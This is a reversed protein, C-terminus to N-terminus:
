RLVMEQDVVGNIMEIRVRVRSPVRAGQMIAAGGDVARLRESVDEGIRVIEGDLSLPTIVIRTVNVAVVENWRDPRIPDDLYAQERLLVGAGRGQRAVRYRVRALRQNPLLTRPDIAGCGVIEFGDANMLGVLAMGNALDHRIVQLMQGSHAKAERSEMRQRDRSVAGAAVLVAGMLIAALTTALLMEILTFGQVHKWERTM